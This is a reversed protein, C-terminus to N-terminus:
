GHQKVGRTLQKVRAHEVHFREVLQNIIVPASGEQDCTYCDVSIYNHEPYTHYSMHSEALLFFATEGEPIFEHRATKIVKVKNAHLLQLCTEFLDAPVPGTLWIDATVHTGKTEM